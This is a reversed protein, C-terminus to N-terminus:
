RRGRLSPAACLSVQMLAAIPWTALRAERTSLVILLSSPWVKVAELLEALDPYRLTCAQILWAVWSTDELERSETGATARRGSCRLRRMRNLLTMVCTGDGEPSVGM